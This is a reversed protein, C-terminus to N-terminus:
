SKQHIIKHFITNRHNTRFDNSAHVVRQQQLVIYQKSGLSSCISSINLKKGHDTM